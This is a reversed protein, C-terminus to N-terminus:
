DALIQWIDDRAQQDLPDPFMSKFGREDGKALLDRMKTGSVDVTSTRSVAQKNILGARWLAGAYKDMSRDPFNKSLDEPDSYITYFAVDHDGIEFRESEYGLQEYIKLVPSGGYEVTVNGPMIGELHRTWITHMDAGSIPSEGKRKRDSTSVYVIVQDNKAAAQEILMHHGAHVPKGSMVVLGVTMDHPFNSPM